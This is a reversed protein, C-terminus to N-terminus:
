KNLSQWTSLNAATNDDYPVPVHLLKVAVISATFCQPCTIALSAVTVMHTNITYM